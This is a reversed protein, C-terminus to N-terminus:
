AFVAFVDGERDMVSVPRVGELEAALAACARLGRIWRMTKREELPKRQEAQGDPAEYQIHPVGLPLGEGSVALTSHMHPALINEPTM